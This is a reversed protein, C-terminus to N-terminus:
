TPYLSARLRVGAACGISEVYLEEEKHRQASSTFPNLFM